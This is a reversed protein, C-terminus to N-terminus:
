RVAIFHALVSQPITKVPVTLTKVGSLRRTSEAARNTTSVTESPIWDTSFRYATSVVVSFLTFLSFLLKLCELRLTPEAHWKLM